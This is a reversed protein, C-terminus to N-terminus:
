YPLRPPRNRRRDKQVGQLRDVDDHARCFIPDIPGWHPESLNGAAFPTYPPVEREGRTLEIAFYNVADQDTASFGAM